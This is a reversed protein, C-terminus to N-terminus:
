PLKYVNYIQNSWFREGGIETDTVLYSAQSLKKKAEDSDISPSHFYVLNGTIPVIRHHRLYYTAWQFRLPDNIKIEVVASQPIVSALEAFPAITKFKVIDDFRVIRDSIILLIALAGTGAAFTFRRTQTFASVALLAFIHVGSALIKFGAYDYQDKIIFLMAAGVLLIASAAIGDRRRFIGALIAVMLGVGVFSKLIDVPTTSCPQFPSYFGSFSSVFCRVDLLTPFYGNGPRLAAELGRTGIQRIMSHYISDITPALTFVFVASAILASRGLKPREQVARFILVLAAPLLLFTAMEPYIYIMAAASLGVFAADLKNKWEFEVAYATLAPAISLALLHDFNNAWILNLIPGSVTALIVFPVQLFRPLTVRGLYYCSSSFTFVCLILFYGMAAQSDAGVPFIGRFLALFVSSTIRSYASSRGFAYLLELQQPAENRPHSWFTEGAALYAFGDWFWSGPYTAIGHIFYPALIALTCLAPVIVLKLSSLNYRMLYASFGFSFGVALWFPLWIAEVTINNGVLVDMTLSWSILAVAPSLLTANELRLYRSVWSASLAAAVLFILSM